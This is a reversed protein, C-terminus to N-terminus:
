GSGTLSLVAPLMLFVLIPPLFFCMTVLTLKLPLLALSRELRQRRCRRILRAAQRLSEGVPTGLRQGRKVLRVFGEIEDVPLRAALAELADTLSRGQELEWRVRLMEAGLRGPVHPAAAMVAQHLNMGGDVCVTLLDLFTSFRGASPPDWPKRRSIRRWWVGGWGSVFARARQEWSFNGRGALRCLRLYRPALVQHCAAGILTTVALGASGAALVHPDM